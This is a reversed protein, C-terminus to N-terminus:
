LGTLRYFRSILTDRATFLSGLKEEARQIPYISIAARGYNSDRCRYDCAIRSLRDLHYFDRGVTTEFFQRPIEMRVIGTNPMEGQAGDLRLYWSVVSLNTENILFAPTRQGPRLDYFAQWGRNHLYSERHTKILGVVPSIAKDFAWVRPELRGDVITPMESGLALAQAELRTMEDMTRNATTKRMREFEYSYGAESTAGGRPANCPLLRFGNQQLAIAFREVEDWPFLNVMLTVVREVREWERRLVGDYDRLVVAGIEALRVPVPYGEAPSRLWAVTRGADKGDVFRTPRLSWNAIAQLPVADRPQWAEANVEYSHDVKKKTEEEEAGDGVMFPQPVEGRVRNAGYVQLFDLGM